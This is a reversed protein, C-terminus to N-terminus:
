RLPHGHDGRGCGRGAPASDFGAGPEDSDAFRRKGPVPSGARDRVSDRVGGTKFGPDVALLHRFSALLLGAGALLVFALGIEASVLGQRLRRTGVGSTGTRSSDRM